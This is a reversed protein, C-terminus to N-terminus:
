DGNAEPEINDRVSVRRGLHCRCFGSQSMLGLGQIKRRLHKECFLPKPMWVSCKEADYRWRVLCHRPASPTSRTTGIAMETWMLTSSSRRAFSPASCQLLIFYGDLPYSSLLLLRTYCIYPFIVLMILYYHSFLHYSHITIYTPLVRSFNGLKRELRTAIMSRWHTPGVRNLPSISFWPEQLSRWLSALM